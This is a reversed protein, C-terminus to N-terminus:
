VSMSLIMSFISASSASSCRSPSERPQHLVRHASRAVARVPSGPLSTMRPPKPQERLGRCGVDSRRGDFTPQLGYEERPELYSPFCRFLRFTAPHDILSQSPLESCGGWSSAIEAQVDRPEISDNGQQWTRSCPPHRSSRL